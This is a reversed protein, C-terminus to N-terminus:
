QRQPSPGVESNNARLVRRRRRAQCCCACAAALRLAASGGSRRPPRLPTGRAEPQFQAPLEQRWPYPAQTPQQITVPQKVCLRIFLPTAAHAGAASRCCLGPCSAALPAAGGAKCLLCRYREIASQRRAARLDRPAAPTEPHGRTTRPSCRWTSCNWPRSCSAHLTMRGPPRGPPAATRGGVSWERKM